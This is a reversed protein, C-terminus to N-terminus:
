PDFGQFLFYALEQHLSELAQAFLSREGDFLWLRDM